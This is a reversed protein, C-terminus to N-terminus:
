NFFFFFNTMDIEMFYKKNKALQKKYFLKLKNLYNSSIKSIGIFRADINNIDSTKKGWKLLKKGKVKLTESDELLKNKKKWVKKWEFDILTVLDKKTKILNNINKKDFIIDAYCIIVDEDYVNQIANFFTYVMNTFKYKKNKVYNYKGGLIKKIM